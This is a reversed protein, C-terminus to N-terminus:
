RTQPDSEAAPDHLSGIPFQELDIVCGSFAEAKSSALFLCVEAVEAARILRGIPWRKGTEKLFRAPLGLKKLTAREGDTDTWGLNLCYVRVRSYKLANALNRSATMLAGKTAAYGLLNPWGIYANVSGINIIVGRRKKLAPLAAQALLLPARVNVRFQRDLLEPTLDELTSRDTAAASNVLIDIPGAARALARCDEASELDAAHFAGRLRGGKRRSRGTLVVRAGESAFREAIAAGLGQTSGTVLASKGALLKM